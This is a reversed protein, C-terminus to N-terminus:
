PVCLPEIELYLVCAGAYWDLEVDEVVGLRVGHEVIAHFDRYIRLFLGFLSFDAPMPGARINAVILVLNTLVVRLTKVVRQRKRVLELLIM